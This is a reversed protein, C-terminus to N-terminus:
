RAPRNRGVQYADFTNGHYVWKFEPEVKYHERMYAGYLNLYIGPLIFYVDKRDLIDLPLDKIHFRVLLEKAPPTNQEWTLSYIPFEKFLGYNGFVSLQDLPFGGLWIVYLRNKQPSLAEIDKEIKIEYEVKVRNELWESRLFPAFVVVWGLLFIWRLWGFWIGSKSSKIFHSSDNPDAELLCLISIYSFLPWVVWSVTKTLYFLGFFVLIVILFNLLILFYKKRPIFFFFLALISLRYLLFDTSFLWQWGTEKYLYPPGSVAMLKKLKELTFQPGQWFWDKYLTFDLGSWGVSSLIKPFAPNSELRRYEVLNHYADLYPHTDEWGPTDRYVIQNFFWASLILCALSGVFSLSKEKQAPKFSSWESFAWPILVLLALFLSQVRILSSLFILFGSALVFVFSRGNRLSDMLLFFGALAAWFSIITYEFHTFYLFFEFPFLGLLIFYKGRSPFRSLVTLILIFMSLFFVTMQFLGYWPISPFGM